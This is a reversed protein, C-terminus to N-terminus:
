ALAGRLDRQAIEDLLADDGDRAGGIGAVKCGIERDEIKRQARSLHGLDVLELPRIPAHDIRRVRRLPIRSGATLAVGSVSPMARMGSMPSPVHSRRPRVQ